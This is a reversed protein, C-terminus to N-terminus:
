GHRHGMMVIGTGLTRRIVRVDDLGAARWADVQRDVPWARAWAEISGPLFSGVQGWGHGFARAALPFLGRAYLRWGARVVPNQPVGFEVSGVAGGPRVVRALERLTAAPDEVYRLLYSFTLGDFTGDAFPLARADAASVPRRPGAQLMAETLDIGIVRCRHRRELARAILGTGTAVDLVLAGPEIPMSGVLTRRWAAYRGFSLAEASRDYRPAIGKFLAQANTPVFGSDCAFRCMRVGPPSSAPGADNFSAAIFIRINARARLTAASAETAGARAPVAEHPPSLGSCVEHRTVILIDLRVRRVVNEAPTTKAPVSSIM